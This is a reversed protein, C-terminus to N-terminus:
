KKRRHKESAKRARLAEERRQREQSRRAQEEETLDEIYIKPNREAALKLVARCDSPKMVFTRVVVDKGIHLQVNPKAKKHDTHLTTIVDWGWLNHTTFGFLTSRIDVGAESIIQERRYFCALMVLLAVPVYIWQKLMAERVLMIGALLFACVKFWTEREKLIGRYEM